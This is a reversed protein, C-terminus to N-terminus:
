HLSFFVPNTLGLTSSALYANAAQSTLLLGRLEPLNPVPVQLGARGSAGQTAVLLPLLTNFDIWTTGFPLTTAPGPLGLALFVSDGPASTVEFAVTGQPPASAATLFALPMPIVTGTANLPPANGNPVLVVSPAIRLEGGFLWIASMPFAHGGAAISSRGDGAITLRADQTSIAPSSPLSGAGNGGRATVQALWVTGAGCTIAPSSTVPRLPLDIAHMGEVYSETVILEARANSIGRCGTITCRALTVLTCTDVFLSWQPPPFSPISLRVGLITVDDFHVRGANNTLVVGTSYISEHEITVRDLVFTRGAALGTVSLLRQFTQPSTIKAGPEGLITVGKSTACPGYSGARVILRDGDVVQASALAPQLDTLHTGPGNAADVIWTAGQASCFSALFGAIAVLRTPM